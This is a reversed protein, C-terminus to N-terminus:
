ITCRYFDLISTGIIGYVRKVGFRRLCEAFGKAVTMSM